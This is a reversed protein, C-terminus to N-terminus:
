AIPAAACAFATSPSRAGTKMAPRITSRLMAARATASPEVSMTPM